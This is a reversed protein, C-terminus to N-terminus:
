VEVKKLGTLKRRYDKEYWKEASHSGKIDKKDMQSYISAVTWYSTTDEADKLTVKDGLKVRDAELWCIIKSDGKTLEYQQVVM